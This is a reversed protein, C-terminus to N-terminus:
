AKPLVGKSIFNEVVAQPNIKPPVYVEYVEAQDTASKIIERMRAERQEMYDVPGYYYAYRQYEKLFHNHEYNIVCPMLTALKTSSSKKIALEKDKILWFVKKIPTLKGVESFLKSVDVKFDKKMKDLVFKITRNDTLTYLWNIVKFYVSYPICKWGLVKRALEKDRLNYDFVHMTKYFPYAMGDEGVIVWDDALYKYGRKSLEMVMSTKGVGGAAPLLFAEGNREVAGAHLLIKDDWQIMPEAYYLVFDGSLGKEYYVKKLKFDIFLGKPSATPSVKFYKEVKEVRTIELNCYDCPPVEFRYYERQFAGEAEGDVKIIFDYINYYKM